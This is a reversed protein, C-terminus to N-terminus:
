CINEKNRIAIILKRFMVDISKEISIYDPIFSEKFIIIIVIQLNGENLFDYLVNKKKRYAERIRRKILNRVVAHRFGMKPVSFMVQAPYPMQLLSKSWIVKFYSTYLINGSEFLRTITKWNCLREAKKLTYNRSIM